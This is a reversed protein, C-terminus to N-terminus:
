HGDEKHTGEDHADEDGSHDDAAAAESNKYRALVDAKVSEFSTIKRTEDGNLLEKQENITQDALSNTKYQVSSIMSNNWQYYLGEVFWITVFTLVMSIVGVLIVVPINVDDYSPRQRGGGDTATEDTSHNEHTTDTM